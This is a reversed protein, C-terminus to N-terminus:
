WCLVNNVRKKCANELVGENGKKLKSLKYERNKFQARARRAHELYFLHWLVFNNQANTHSCLNFDPTHTFHTISFLITHTHARARPDSQQPEKSHKINCSSYNVFSLIKLEDAPPLLVLWIRVAVSGWWWQRAGIEQSFIVNRIAPLRCCTIKLVRARHSRVPSPTTTYIHTNPPPPSLQRCLDDWVLSMDHQLQGLFTFKEGESSMGCFGRRGVRANSQTSESWRWSFLPARM